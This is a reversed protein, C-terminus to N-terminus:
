EEVSTVAPNNKSIRYLEVRIVDEVEVARRYVEIIVEMNPPTIPLSSLSIFFIIAIDVSLCSPKIIDM